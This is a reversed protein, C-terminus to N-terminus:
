RPVEVVGGIMGVGTFPDRCANFGFSGLYTLADRLAQPLAVGAVELASGVHALGLAVCGAVRLWEGEQEAGDIVAQAARLSHDSAAIAAAVDDYGRSDYCERVAPATIASGCDHRLAVIASQEAANLSTASLALTHRATSQWSGCAIQTTCISAIAAFIARRALLTFAKQKRM